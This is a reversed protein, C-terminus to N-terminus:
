GYGSLFEVGFSLSNAGTPIDVPMSLLATSAHRLKVYGLTDYVAHGTSDTVYGTTNSLTAYSNVGLITVKKRAWDAFKLLQAM